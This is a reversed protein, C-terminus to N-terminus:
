KKKGDADFQKLYATVDAIDKDATLGPFLMKNGPMFEKPDRIYKAFVEETWVVNSSKNAESYNFGEISGAKRGFLGNLKPGVGNKATEGVQHCARCKLFTKEGAAADQASAPMAGALVFAAALASALRASV